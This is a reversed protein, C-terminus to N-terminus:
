YDFDREPVPSPDIEDASIWDEDEKGELIDDIRLLRTTVHTATEVATREVGATTMPGDPFADRVGGHASDFAVDAGARLETLVDIPDDGANEALLRPVTELADAYAEMALAARDDVGRAQRRVAAAMRTEIGGGAPVLPEGGMADLVVAIAARLDREREEHYEGLPGSLVLTTVTSTEGGRVTVTEESGDVSIETATGVMEETLDAIDMAVTAGTTRALLSAHTELLARFATIGADELLRKGADSIGMTCFVADVDVERLRRVQERVQETEADHFAAVDDPSDATFSVETRGEGRNGGARFLTREEIGSGAKKGGGIIAVRADEIHRRMGEQVADRDLVVGDVVDVSPEGNRDETRFRVDSLDVARNRALRDTGIRGAAETVAEALEPRSSALTTRAVARL